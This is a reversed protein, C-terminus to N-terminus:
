RIFLKDKVFTRMLKHVNKLDIRMKTNGDLTKNKIRYKLIQM